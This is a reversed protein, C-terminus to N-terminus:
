KKDREKKITLAQEYATEYRRASDDWSFSRLM